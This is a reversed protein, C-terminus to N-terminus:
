ASWLPRHTARALHIKKIDDTLYDLSLDALAMTIYSKRYIAGLDDSHVIERVKPSADAWFKTFGAEFLIAQRLNLIKFEDM